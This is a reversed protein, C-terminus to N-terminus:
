CLWRSAFWAGLFRFFNVFFFFPYIFPLTFLLAYICGAVPIYLEDAIKLLAKRSRDHPNLIDEPADFVVHPSSSGSGEKKRDKEIEDDSTFHEDARKLKPWRPTEHSHLVSEQERFQVGARTFQDTSEQRGEDQVKM